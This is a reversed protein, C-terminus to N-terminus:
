NFKQLMGYWRVTDKYRVLTDCMLKIKSTLKFIASYFCLLVSAITPLELLAPTTNRWMVTTINVALSITGPYAELFRTFPIFTKLCIQAADKLNRILYNQRFSIAIETACSLKHPNFYPKIPKVTVQEQNGYRCYVLAIM